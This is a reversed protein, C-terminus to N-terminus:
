DSGTRSKAQFAAVKLMGSVAQEEQEVEQLYKQLEAISGHGGLAQLEAPSGQV